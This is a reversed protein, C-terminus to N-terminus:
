RAQAMMEQFRTTAYSDGVFFVSYIPGEGYCYSTTGYGFENENVCQLNQNAIRLQSRTVKKYGTKQYERLRRDVRQEVTLEDKKDQWGFVDLFFTGKEKQPWLPGRNYNDISLEMGDYIRPPSWYLVPFTVGNITVQDGHHAHWRIAEFEPGSKYLAHGMLFLALAALVGVWRWETLRAGFAERIPRRLLYILVAVSVAQSLLVTLLGSAVIYSHPWLWPAVKDSVVRPLPDLADRSGVEALNVLELLICVVRAWNRLRWFGRAYIYELIGGGLCLLILGPRGGIPFDSIDFPTGSPDFWSLLRSLAHPAILAGVAIFGCWLAGAFNWVAFAAIGKPRRMM